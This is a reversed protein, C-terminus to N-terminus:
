RVIRKPPRVADAYMGEKEKAYSEAFAASLKVFAQAIGNISILILGIMVFLFKIRM